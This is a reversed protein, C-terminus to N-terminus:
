KNMTTYNKQAGNLKQSWYVVPKKNQMIVALMQYDSSDTYIHFPKNHNTYAMLADLSLITKIWLFAKDMEDTWHFTKKGSKDSIPQLIHVQKPCM